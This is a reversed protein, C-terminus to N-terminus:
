YLYHLMFWSVFEGSTDQDDLSSFTAVSNQISFNCKILLGIIIIPNKTSEDCQQSM